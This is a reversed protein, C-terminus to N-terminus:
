TGKGSREGREEDGVYNGLEIQSYNLIKESRKELKGLHRVDGYKRVNGSSSTLKKGFRWAMDEGGWVSTEQRQCIDTGV